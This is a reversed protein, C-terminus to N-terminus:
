NKQIPIYHIQWQQQFPITLKLVSNKELTQKLKNIEDYFQTAILVDDLDDDDHRAILMSIGSERERWGESDDM